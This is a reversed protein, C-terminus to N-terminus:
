GTQSLQTKIKPSFHCTELIDPLFSTCKQFNVQFPLLSCVVHVFIATLRLQKVGKTLHIYQLM